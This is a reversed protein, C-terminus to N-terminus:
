GIEPPGDEISVPQVLIPISEGELPRNRYLDELLTSTQDLQESTPPVQHGKAERYWRQNKSWAERVQDNSVLAKIEERARRVRSRRVEKFAAQFRRMLVRHEGKSTRSKSGLATRQDSIKWTTDLIWPAM